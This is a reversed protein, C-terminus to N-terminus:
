KMAKISELAVFAVSVPLSEFSIWNPDSHGRGNLDKLLTDFSIGKENCKDKVFKIPNNPADAVKVEENPNMEELMVTEIGLFERVCRGFARNSAIAPLFQSFEPAVNSPAAGAVGTYTSEKYDTEFNPSFTISCECMVGDNTSILKQDVRTFGRVRLLDRFGALKILTKDEPVELLYKNTEEASLLKTDVGAKAMAVRNLVIYEPKVCKRWDVFGLDTFTYEIGKLLGREDRMSEKVVEVKEVKAKRGRKKPAEEINEM